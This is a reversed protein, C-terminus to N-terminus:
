NEIHEGNDATTLVDAKRNRDSINGSAGCRKAHSYIKERKSVSIELIIEDSKVNDYKYPFFHAYCWLFFSQELPLAPNRIFAQDGKESSSYKLAFLPRIEM